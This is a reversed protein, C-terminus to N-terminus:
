SGLSQGRIDGNRCVHVYIIIVNTEPNDM